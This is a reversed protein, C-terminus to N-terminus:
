YKEFKDNWNFTELILKSNIENIDKDSYRVIQFNAKLHFCNKVQADYIIEKLQWVKLLIYWFEIKKNNNLSISRSRGKKQIKEQKM